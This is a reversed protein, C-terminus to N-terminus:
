EQLVENLKDRAKRIQEMVPQGKELFPFVPALLERYYVSALEEDVVRIKELKETTLMVM